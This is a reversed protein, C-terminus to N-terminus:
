ASVYAKLNRPIGKARTPARMETGSTRPPGKLTRWKKQALEIVADMEADKLDHKIKLEAVEVAESKDSGRSWETM